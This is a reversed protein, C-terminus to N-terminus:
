DHSGGENAPFWTQLITMFKAFAPDTCGRLSVVEALARFRRASVPERAVRLATRMAAKPAEPKPQGEEMFGERRLYERLDPSRESWGLLRDVEPSPSWVWAEIEPDIVIAACRNEWGTARLGAEVGSEIDQRPADSGCGHRDFLVLCHRHTRQFLRLFEPAQRRCGSDRMTHRQCDFTVAAIGLSARRCELLGTVVNEADRDAALVILDKQPVTM